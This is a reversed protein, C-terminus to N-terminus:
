KKWFGPFLLILVTYIELRGVLMCFTLILKALPPLFSYNLAPGVRGLGPGINGLSAAVASAGTILDIGLAGMILTCVVFLGIYLLVMGVIGHLVASSVIHGGLKVAVVAKPHVIKQMEAKIYRVLLLVRVCKIGGGTSGACGGIFMLLLLLAQSYNPWSAFDATSYGTTTLISVGQFLAEELRKAWGGGQHLLLDITITIVTFTVVATYFRFERNKWYGELKGRLLQYHLAFNSGAMFMFLTIVLRHYTGFHGISRNKTSFGGTAMTTFTHCLSDFLDMGGLTLLLVEAASILLYTQWLIKATEAIRPRLKDVFPGPVEAKYLQMGGVGLFPLIAISFLIIGMGGLWQIMSRWLLIGKPLEEVSQLISAGTTTFGSVTEFLTDVASPFHPSLFFPLAGFFSANMWGLSVILFAEKQTIERIRGRFPLYLLLGCLSTILIALIFPKIEEGFLLSTLAPLFMAVALFLNLVGIIPLVAVM